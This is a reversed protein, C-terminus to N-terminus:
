GEVILNLMPVSFTSSRISASSSAKLYTFYFILLFLKFCLIIAFIAFCIVSRIPLVGSTSSFLYELNRPTSVGIIAFTSNKLGPPLTFSRIPNAIISAASFSPLSFGPAVIMSGVLPLVPTPRARTDAIFPYLSIRVIGSVM